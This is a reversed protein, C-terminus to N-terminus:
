PTEQRREGGREVFPVETGVKTRHRHLLIINNRQFTQNQISSHKDQLFDIPFISSFHQLKKEDISFCREM